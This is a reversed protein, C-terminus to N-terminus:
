WNCVDEFCLNKWNPNINQILEIKVKRSGGKIRKDEEIAEEINEYLYFYVLEIINDRATFSSPYIKNLHEQIRGVLNSTVGTYLLTHNKNTLIYVM